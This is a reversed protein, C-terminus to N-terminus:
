AAARLTAWTDQEALAVLDEAQEPTIGPLDSGDIVGAGKAYRDAVPVFTPLGDTTRRAILYGNHHHLLSARGTAILMPVVQGWWRWVPEHTSAAEYLTPPLERHWTVDKRTLRQGTTPDVLRRAIGGLDLLVEM